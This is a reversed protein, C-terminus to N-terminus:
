RGPRLVGDLRDVARLLRARLDDPDLQAFREGRDRRAEGDLRRRPDREVQGADGVAEALRRDLDVLAVQARDADGLGALARAEDQVELSRGPVARLDVALHQDDRELVVRRGRQRARAPLRRAEGLAEIASRQRQAVDIETTAGIAGAPDDDLQRVVLDPDVNALLALAQDDL